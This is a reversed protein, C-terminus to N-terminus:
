RAFKETGLLSGLTQQRFQHLRAAKAIPPDFRRRGCRAVVPWRALILDIRRSASEFASGPALVATPPM